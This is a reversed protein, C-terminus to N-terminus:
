AAVAEPRGEFTRAMWELVAEHACGHEALLDEGVIM